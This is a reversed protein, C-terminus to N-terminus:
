KTLLEFVVPFIVKEWEAYEKASPHLGDRAVLSSDDRMEKSLPFVDVVRLGRNRAEEAIIKNFSLIGYLDPGPARGPLKRSALGNREHRGM